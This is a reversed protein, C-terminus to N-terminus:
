ARRKEWVIRSRDVGLSATVGANCRSTPQLVHNGTGTIRYTAHFIVTTFAQQCVFESGGDPNAGNDKLSVVAVGTTTIQIQFHVMLVQGAVLPVTVSWGPIDVDSGSVPMTHNAALPTSGSDLAELADLRGDLTVAYAPDAVGGRWAAIWPQRDQDFLLLAEDDEQPLLPVGESTVRSPWLLPGFSRHEDFDPLVVRVPVNHATADDIIVGNYPRQELPSGPPGDILEDISM